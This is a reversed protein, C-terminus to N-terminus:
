DLLAAFRGSWGFESLLFRINELPGSTGVAAPIRREGLWRLFRDLGPLPRVRGSAAERYLAEKEESLAPLEAPEFSTGPPLLTPLILENSQGFTSQIVAAPPELGFRRRLLRRWSELHYEETDALVGDMDFIVAAVGRVLDGAWLRAGRHAAELPSPSSLNEADTGPM